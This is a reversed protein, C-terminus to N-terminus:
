ASLQRSLSQGKLLEDVDRPRGYDTSAESGKVDRLLGCQLCEFFTGDSDRDVYMDGCCKPCAKFFWM